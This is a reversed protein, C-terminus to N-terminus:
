LDDYSGKETDSSTNTRTQKGIAIWIKQSEKTILNNVQELQQPSDITPYSVENGNADVFTNESKIRDYISPTLPTFARTFTKGKADEVGGVAFAIGNYMVIKDFNVTSYDRGTLPQVSGQAYMNSSQLLQTDMSVSKFSSTNQVQMTMAGAQGVESPIVTAINKKGGGGSRDPAHSSFKQYQTEIENAVQGLAYDKFEKYTPRYKEDYSGYAENYFNQLYPEYEQEYGAKLAALGKAKDKAFLADKGWSQEKVWDEGHVVLKNLGDVVPKTSEALDLAMVFKPGYEKDLATFEEISQNAVSADQALALYEQAAKKAAPSAYRRKKPDSEISASLVEKAANYTNNRSQIASNIMAQTEAVKRKAPLDYKGTMAIEKIIPTWLNKQWALNGQQKLDDSILKPQVATSVVDYDKMKQLYRQKKAEKLQEDAAQLVSMSFMPIGASFIPLTGLPGSMSSIQVGRNADPTYYNPPLIQGGGVTETPTAGSMQTILDAMQQTYDLGPIGMASDPTQATAGAENAPAQTNVYGTNIENAAM